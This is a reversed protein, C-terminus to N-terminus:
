YCVYPGQPPRRHSVFTGDSAVEVRNNNANIVLENGSADCPVRIGRNAGGVSPSAPAAVGFSGRSPHINCNTSLNDSGSKRDRELCWYRYFGSLGDNHPLPSLGTNSEHQKVADNATRWADRAARRQSWDTDTSPDIALFARALAARASVLKEHEAVAIRDRCKQLMREARDLNEQAGPVRADRLEQLKPIPDLHEQCPDTEQAAASGGGGVSDPGLRRTRGGCDLSADNAEM